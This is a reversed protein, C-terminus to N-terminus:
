IGLSEGLGAAQEVATTLAHLAARLEPEPLYGFGLRFVRPEDGFWDGDALRVGGQEAARKFRQVDVKM